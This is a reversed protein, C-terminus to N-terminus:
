LHCRDQLSLRSDHPSGAPGREAEGLHSAKSYLVNGPCLQPPPAGLPAPLAFLCVSCTKSIMVPKSLLVNRIEEAKERFSLM